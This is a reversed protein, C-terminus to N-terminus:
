RGRATLLPPGNTRGCPGFMTQSVEAGARNAFACSEGLRTLALGDAYNQLVLGIKAAADAPLFGQDHVLLVEPYTLLSRALSVLQRELPSLVLTIHAMPTSGGRSCFFYEPLGLRICLLWITEETHRNGCGDARVRSSGRVRAEAAASDAARM